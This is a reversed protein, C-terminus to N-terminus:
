WWRSRKLRRCCRVARGCSGIARRISCISTRIATNSTCFGTKLSHKLEKERADSDSVTTGADISGKHPIKGAGHLLADALETKGAGSHGVLAINRIQETSHTM